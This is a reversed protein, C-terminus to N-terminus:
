TGTADASWRATISGALAAQPMAVSCRSSRRTAAGTRAGLARGVHCWGLVSRGEAAAGSRSADRGGRRAEGILEPDRPHRYPFTPAADSPPVVQRPHDEWDAARGLETVLAARGECAETWLRINGLVLDHNARPAGSSNSLGNDTSRMRNASSMSAQGM